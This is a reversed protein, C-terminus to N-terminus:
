SVRFAQRPKLAFCAGRGPQIMGIEDGDVLSTLESGHVIDGQGITRAVGKRHKELSAGRGNGTVSCSLEYQREGVCDLICM